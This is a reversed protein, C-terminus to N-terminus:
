STVGELPIGEGILIIPIDERVPYLVAGDERVLGEVLPDVVVDGDRNLLDGNNILENLKELLAPEAQHM